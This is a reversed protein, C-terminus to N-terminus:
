HAKSSMVRAAVVRAQGPGLRGELIQAVEDETKGEVIESLKRAQADFGRRTVEEPDIQSRLVQQLEDLSLGRQTAPPPLDAHYLAILEGAISVAVEVPRKGPVEALGVPCRVHQYYEAENGRHQLRMQFRRWKTESGILGIHTEDGIESVLLRGGHREIHRVVGAKEKLSCESGLVVIM